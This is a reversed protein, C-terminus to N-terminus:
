MRARTRVFCNVLLDFVVQVGELGDDDFVHFHLVWEHTTSLKEAWVVQGISTYYWQM